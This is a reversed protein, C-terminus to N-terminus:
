SGATELPKYRAEFLEGDAAAQLAVAEQFAGTGQTASFTGGAAGFLNAADTIAGDALATFTDAGSLLKVQGYETDAIDQEAVADAKDTLGAPAYTNAGEYVLRMGLSIAGNAKVTPRGAIDFQTTSDAM